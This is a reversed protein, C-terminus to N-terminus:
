SIDAGIHRLAEIGSSLYQRNSTLFSYSIYSQAIKLSIDKERAKNHKIIIWGIRKMLNMVSWKLHREIQAPNDILKNYYKSLGFFMERFYIGWVRRYLKNVEIKDMLLSQPRMKENLAWESLVSVDNKEPYYIRIRRVRECYSHHYKGKQLLLVDVIALVAKAMQNRFLRVKEGDYSNSSLGNEDLSGLLTWLRTFYLTEIERLPLTSSDMGPISDRINMDGYIVKSAYKLDYNYISPRLTQLEPITKCGLDIWRIGIAHKIEESISNLRQTSIKEKAILIIDYDNYPLCKSSSEFIWSGEDRGYGGYIIIAITNDSALFNKIIGFDHKLREAILLQETSHM